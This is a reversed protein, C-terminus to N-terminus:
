YMEQLLRTSTYQKAVGYLLHDATILTSNSKMTTAILVADHTGIRKDFGISIADVLSEQGGTLLLLGNNFIETIAAAIEHTPMDGKGHLVNAVEHIVSSDTGLKIKGSLMSVYLEGAKDAAEEGFLFWKLIVSSDVVYM